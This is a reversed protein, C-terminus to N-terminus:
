SAYLGELNTEAGVAEKAFILNTNDLFEPPERQHQSGPVNNGVYLTQQESLEM